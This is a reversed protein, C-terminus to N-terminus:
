MFTAAGEILASRVPEPAGRDVYYVIPELVRSRPSAPDVKRLRHRVTWQVRLPAGIPNAYDHFTIAQSGSRPDHRRPRYGTDPLRVLSHHQVLTVSQPHPATARVHPGPEQGSFTLVAELIFSQM